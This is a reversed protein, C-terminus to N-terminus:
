KKSKNDPQLEVSNTNKENWCKYVQDSKAIRRSKETESRNSALIFCFIDFQVLM